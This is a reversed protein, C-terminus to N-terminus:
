REHLSGIGGHGIRRHAAVLFRQARQELLAGVDVLRLTIPHRREVPRSSRAVELEHLRQEVGSRVHARRGAEAAIGRNVDGALRTLGTDDLRQALRTGVDVHHGRGTRRGQHQGCGGALRVRDLRQEVMACRDVGPIFGVVFCREHERRSEIAALHHPEQERATGLVVQRGLHDIAAVARQCGAIDCQLFGRAAATPGLVVRCASAAARSSRRFYGPHRTGVVVVLQDALDSSKAARCPLMSDTLASTSAPAFTLRILGASLAEGISM